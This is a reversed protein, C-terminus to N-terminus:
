PRDEKVALKLYHEVKTDTIDDVNLVFELLSKLIPEPDSMIDEFRIIHVPIKNEM